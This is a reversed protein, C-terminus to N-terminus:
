RDNEKRTSSSIKESVSKVADIIKKYGTCKCLNGELAKKIQKENPNKNKDLLSKTTMIMGPTCFGCQIAGCEIFSEIIMKDKKDKLGEITTINKKDVEIAFILCSVVAKENILVTCAGCNGRECSKKTGTLFLKDRIFDILLLDKKVNEDYKFGNIKIQIRRTDEM